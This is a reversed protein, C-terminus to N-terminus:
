GRNRWMTMCHSTTRLEHSLRKLWLKLQLHKPYKPISQHFIAYIYVYVGVTMYMYKYIYMYIYIYVYM